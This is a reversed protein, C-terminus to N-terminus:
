NIKNHLDHFKSNMICQHISVLYLFPHNHEKLSPVKKLMMFICPSNIVSYHDLRTDMKPINRIWADLQKLEEICNRM